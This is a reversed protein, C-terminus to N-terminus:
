LTNNFRPLALIEKRFQAGNSMSTSLLKHQIAFKWELIMTNLCESSGKRIEVFGDSVDEVLIKFIGM